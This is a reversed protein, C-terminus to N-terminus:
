NLIFYYIDDDGKGGDRKSSLYGTNNKSNIIFSFDDKDSNIPEPLKEAEEFSGDKSLKSKYIDFGGFGNPRDSAFYLVNDASIFPFMEKSYSNVKSGLNIPESYANEALIDVKFIDSVGKTMQKGTRINAVFYLVKGDPSVAPHGYSYIPKCFNLVKFNTWGVGNVYEGVELHFNSEKYTGKPKIKRNAYTTAIYLYEGDPSLSASTISPLGEKEDIQLTNIDVINGDEKRKGSYLMLIGENSSSIKVNGNKNLLYSTYLVINEQAFSLGFHPKEDNLDINKVHYTKNQSFGLFNM